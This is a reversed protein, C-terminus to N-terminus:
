RAHLIMEVPHGECLGTACNDMIIVDLNQLSSLLRQNANWSRDPHVCFHLRDVVRSSKRTELLDSPVNETEATVLHNRAIIAILGGVPRESSGGISEGSRIRSRNHYHYTRAYECSVLFSISVPRTNIGVGQEISERQRSLFNSFNRSKEEIPKSTYLSWKWAYTCIIYKYKEM